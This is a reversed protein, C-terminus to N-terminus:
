VQLPKATETRPSPIGQWWTWALRSSSSLCTSPHGSLHTVGLRACGLEAWGLPFVECVGARIVSVCFWSSFLIMTKLWQVRPINTVCCYIVPACPLSMSVFDLEHSHFSPAPFGNFAQHSNEWNREPSTHYNKSCDTSEGGDSECDQKSLGLHDGWGWSLVVKRHLLEGDGFSQNQGRRWERTGQTCHVGSDLPGQPCCANQPPLSDSFTSMTPCAIFSQMEDGMHPCPLTLSKVVM